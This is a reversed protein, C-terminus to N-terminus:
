YRRNKMRFGTGCPAPKKNPEAKSLRAILQYQVLFPAFQNVLVKAARFNVSFSISRPM